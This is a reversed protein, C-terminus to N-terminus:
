LPQDPYVAINEKASQYLDGLIESELEDIKSGQVYVRVKQLREAPNVICFLMAANSIYRELSASPIPGVEILRKYTGESLDMNGIIQDASSYEKVTAVTLFKSALNHVDVAFKVAAEPDAGISQLVLIIRQPDMVVAPNTVLDILKDSTIDNPVNRSRIMAGAMKSLRYTGEDGISSVGTAKLKNVINQSLGAIPIVDEHVLPAEDEYMFHLPTQWGYKIRFYDPLLRGFRHYRSLMGSFADLTVSWIDDPLEIVNDGEM